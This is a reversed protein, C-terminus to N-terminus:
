LLQKRMDYTWYCIVTQDFNENTEFMSLLCPEKGSVDTNHLCKIKRYSAARMIPYCAVSPVSSLSQIFQRKWFVNTHLPLLVTIHTGCPLETHNTKLTFCKGWHCETEVSLLINIAYHSHLMDFTTSTFIIPFSMQLSSWSLQGLIHYSPHSHPVLPPVLEPFDSPQYKLVASFSTPFIYNKVDYVSSFGNRFICM